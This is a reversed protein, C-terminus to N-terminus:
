FILGDELLADATVSIVKKEMHQHGVFARKTQIHMQTSPHLTKHYPTYHIDVRVKQGNKMKM